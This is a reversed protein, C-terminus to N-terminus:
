AEGKIEHDITREVRWPLDSEPPEPLGKASPPRTGCVGDVEAHSSACFLSRQLEGRTVVIVYQDLAVQCWACSVRMECGCADNIWDESWEGLLEYM